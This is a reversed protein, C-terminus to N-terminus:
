LYLEPYDERLMEKEVAWEIHEFFSVEGNCYYIGYIDVIEGPHKNLIYFKKDNHILHGHFDISVKINNKLYERSHIKVYRKISSKKGM